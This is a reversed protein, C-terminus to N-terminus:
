GRRAAGRGGTGRVPAQAPGPGARLVRALVAGANRGAAASRGPQRRVLCARRRGPPPLGRRSLHQRAPTAAGTRRDPGAARRGPRPWHAPHAPRHGHGRAGAIERSAHGSRLQAVVGAGLNRSRASVPFSRSGAPLQRLGRNNRAGPQCRDHGPRRTRPGDHRRPAALTRSGPFAIAVSAARVRSGLPGTRASVQGIGVRLRQPLPRSGAVGVLALGTSVGSSVQAKVRTAPTPNSGVYASGVTKCVAGKPWEPLRGLATWWLRCTSPYRFRGSSDAGPRRVKIGHCRFGREVDHRLYIVLFDVVRQVLCRLLDARSEVEAAHARGDGPGAVLCDLDPRVALLPSLGYEVHELLLKDLAANRELNEVGAVRLRGASLIAEQGLELLTDGLLVRLLDRLHDPVFARFADPRLDLAFFKPHGRLLLVLQLVDLAQELALFEVDSQLEHVVPLQGSTERVWAM